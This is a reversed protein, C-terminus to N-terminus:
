KDSGNGFRSHAGRLAVGHLIQKKLQPTTLPKAPQALTGTMDLVACKTGWERSAKECVRLADSHEFRMARSQDTHWLMGKSAHLSELYIRTGRFDRVVVNSPKM